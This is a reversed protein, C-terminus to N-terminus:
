LWCHCCFNCIGLQADLLQIVKQVMIGGPVPCPQRALLFLLAVSFGSAHARCLLHVVDSIYGRYEGINQRDLITTEMTKEM